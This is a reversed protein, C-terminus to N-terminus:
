FVVMCEDWDCHHVWFIWTSTNGYDDAEDKDYLILSSGVVLAAILVCVILRNVMQDIKALPAQSGMLNLNVKIQGRQVMKLVDSAQM